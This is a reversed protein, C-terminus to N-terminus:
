SLSNLIVDDSSLWVVSVAKEDDSLAKWAAGGARASDVVSATPNDLKFNPRFM